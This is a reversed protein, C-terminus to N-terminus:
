DGDDGARALADAAGGGNAERSIEGFQDQDGSVFLGQFFGRGLDSGCASLADSKIEIEALDFGGAGDHFGRGFREASDVGEEVNGARDGLDVEELHRVVLPSGSHLQLKV